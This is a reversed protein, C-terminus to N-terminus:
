PLAAAAASLSASTCGGDTNHSPQVAPTPPGGVAGLPMPALVPAVPPSAEATALVPAVPPSAEATAAAASTQAAPAGGIGQDGQEIGSSGNSSGQSLQLTSRSLTTRCMSCGAFPIQTIPTCAYHIFQKSAAHYTSFILAACHM